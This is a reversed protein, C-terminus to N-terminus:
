AEVKNYDQSDKNAQEWISLEKKPENLYHHDLYSDDGAAMEEDSAKEDDDRMRTQIFSKNHLRHLTLAETDNILLLVVLACINASRM